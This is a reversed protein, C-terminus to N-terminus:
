LCNFWYSVCVVCSGDSYCLGFYNWVLWVKDLQLMFLVDSYLWVINVQYCVVLLVQYEEIIVDQLLVLIQLVYIVFVVVDFQEECLEVGGSCVLVGQENCIVSVFCSGLCVDDFIVVICCVYECLGGCVICWCLCNNVQLLGYNICFCLFIVVLFDFIDLFLSFWIVVVMLILYVDGFLVGYGGEELLQCLIVLCGECVVLNVYVSCNFCLIDCLMGLFFLQLLCKCQVFVIDLNIGVWEFSGEDMLVGFFMDIDYIEVKLEEFLVILNFYIWDNFVLFGIDVLFFVGELVIEVINVYGGLLLVFEFFVVQYKCVLLYVSVLGFIGVGIVVVCQGMGQEIVVVNLNM